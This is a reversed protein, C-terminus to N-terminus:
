SWSTSSQERCSFLILGLVVTTAVITVAVAAVVAAAALRGGAFVLAGAAVRADGIPVNDERAQVGEPGHPASAVVGSVDVAHSAAGAVKGDGMSRPTRGRRGHGSAGVPGIVRPYVVDELTNQCAFCPAQVAFSNGALVFVKEIEADVYFLIRGDCTAQPVEAAGLGQTAVVLELAVGAGSILFGM